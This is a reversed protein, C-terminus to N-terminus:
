YDTLISNRRDETAFAPVSSLRFKDSNQATQPISLANKGVQDILSYSTLESNKRSYFYYYDGSQHSKWGNM